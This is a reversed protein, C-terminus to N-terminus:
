ITQGSQSLRVVRGHLTLNLALNATAHAVVWATQPFLCVDGGGNVGRFDVRVSSGAPVTAVGLIDMDTGDVFATGKATASVLLNPKGTKATSIVATPVPPTIQQQEDFYGFTTVGGGSLVNTVGYGYFVDSAGGGLDMWDLVIVDIPATLPSSNFVYIFEFNGAGQAIVIKFGTFSRGNTRFPAQSGDGLIVTGAVRTDLQLGATLLSQIQSLDYGQLSQLLRNLRGLFDGTIPFKQEAPTRKLVDAREPTPKQEEAM